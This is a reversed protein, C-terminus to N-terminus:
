ASPVFSGDFWDGQRAKIDGMIRLAVDLALRGEEGSVAPKGGTQVARVFSRIEEELADTRSVELEEGQLMPLGSDPSPLRRVVNVQKLGCDISLYADRQFVRIKRMSKASIRSATLNAVCGGPFELRANAIDVRQSVVQVGVAQVSSPEEGTLNLLIDLDHIMLDLVVDVDTSREPFPSIRNAEVFLPQGLMPGAAVMAPNFRELLGVQLVLGKDRALAILGDAEEITRTIPKEVLVHVGAALFRSAVAFHDQTPVVVNVADVLGILDEFNYFAKVGLSEALADARRRSIDAVGVLEVGEILKYKEAHFRGLHGVGIVATRLM